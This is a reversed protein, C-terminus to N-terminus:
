SAVINVIQNRTGRGKRFGPQIDPLEQSMNKQIRAQLIKLMVKCAHSIVAITCYKSCEKDNDKKSIPIFISRKWDQPWQHTKSIQQCILNAASKLVIKQFILYSLQFEMVEVLKTRLLAELPGSSKVNWSTQSYILSWVMRTIWTM